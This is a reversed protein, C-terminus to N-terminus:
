KSEKPRREYIEPHLYVNEKSLFKPKLIHAQYWNQTINNWIMVKNLEIDLYVFMSGGSGDHVKHTAEPPAASWDSKIM